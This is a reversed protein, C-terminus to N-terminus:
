RVKTDVRMQADTAFGQKLVFFFDNFFIIARM